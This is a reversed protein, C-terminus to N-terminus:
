LADTQSRRMRGADRPDDGRLGERRLDGCGAVFTDAGARRSGASTTRSSAATSRWASRAGARTSASARRAALKDLSPAIFQQGGFGPNVSMLLVLDVQHRAHPRALVAPDGPEVRPRAPLRARPDAPDHPRRAREGGPPLQDLERGAEAFDPVIRDVPEVMLHVDIPATIGHKRLAEACRAPRDDPEPVYHNDMVDFHIWDAGAAARGRSRRRPARLGRVPHITRHGTGAHSEM